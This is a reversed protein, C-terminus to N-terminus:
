YWPEKVSKDCTVKNVWGFKYITGEKFNFIVDIYRLIKEITYLVSYIYHGCVINIISIIYACM